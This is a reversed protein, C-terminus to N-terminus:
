THCCTCISLVHPVFSIHCINGYYVTRIFFPLGYEFAWHELTLQNSFKCTAYLYLADQEREMPVNKKDPIDRMASYMAISYSLTM